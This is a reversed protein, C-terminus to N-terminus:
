PPWFDWLRDSRTPQRMKRLAEAEIQRIRERTEGFERGVEELTHSKTNGLGFRLVLVGAEREPLSALLKQVEDELVSREAEEEPGPLMLRSPAMLGLSIAEDLSIAQEEIAKPVETLRLEQLWAPFLVERSVGLVQSIRDLVGEDKKPHWRFTELQSITNGALGVKAALDKQRLGLCERAVRMSWNYTRTKVGFRFEEFIDSNVM